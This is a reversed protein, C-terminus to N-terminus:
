DLQIYLGTAASRLLTDRTVRVITKIFPQWETEALADGASFVEM